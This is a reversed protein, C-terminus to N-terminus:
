RRFRETMWQGLRFALLPVILLTAVLLVLALLLLVTEV